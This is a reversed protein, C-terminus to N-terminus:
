DDLWSDSYLVNGTLVNVSRTYARQSPTLTGIDVAEGDMMRQQKRTLYMFNMLFPDAGTNLGKCM